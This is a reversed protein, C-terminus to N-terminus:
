STPPITVAILDHFPIGISTGANFLGYQSALQIIIFSNCGATSFDGVLIGDISSTGTSFITFFARTQLRLGSAGILTLPPGITPIASNPPLSAM